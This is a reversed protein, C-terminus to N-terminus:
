PLVTNDKVSHSHVDGAPISGADAPYLGAARDKLSRHCVPSGLISSPDGPDFVPASVAASYGEFPPQRSKFGHIASGCDAATGRLWLWM